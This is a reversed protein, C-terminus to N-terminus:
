EWKQTPKHHLNDKRTRKVQTNCKNKMVKELEPNNKAVAM